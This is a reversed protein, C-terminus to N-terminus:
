KRAAAAVKGLLRQVDVIVWDNAEMEEASPGAWHPFADAGSRVVRISEDRDLKLCQGDPWSLRRILGGSQVSSLAALFAASCTSPDILRM